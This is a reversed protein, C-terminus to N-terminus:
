PWLGAMPLGALPELGLLLNMNQVAQGSGGKLLNDIAVFVAAADETEVVGITSRMSGVVAGMAVRGEAVCVLSAGDYAESLLALASGNLESRRLTITLHIGRAVPASHATFDVAAERGHSSRMLQRLEGMHQHALPKYAWFNTMRLSHHVGHRPRAGSGTSGTVGNVVLRAGSELHPVLPVTGLAIATAFCGPNAVLACGDPPPGTLEPLGYFARDLLEPCPHARQYYRPYDEPDRLRFDSGLDIVRCGRDLLGAALEASSGHPLALFVVDCSAGLRAPDAQELVRSGLGSLSPRIEGLLRGVNKSSACVASLEASPHGAILRVVEGGMFGTAGVIGVRAGSMADGVRM